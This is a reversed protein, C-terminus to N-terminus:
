PPWVDEVVVGDPRTPKRTGRYVQCQPISDTSGEYNSSCTRVREASKEKERSAHVCMRDQLQSLPFMKANQRRMKDEEESVYRMGLLAMLTSGQFHSM